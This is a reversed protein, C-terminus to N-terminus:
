EVEEYIKGGRELAVKRIMRARYNDREYRLARIITPKSCHVIERLNNLEGSKVIIRKM